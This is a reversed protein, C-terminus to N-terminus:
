ASAYRHAWSRGIYRVLAVQDLDNPWHAEVVKPFKDFLNIRYLYGELDADPFALYCSGPLHAAKAREKPDDWQSRSHILVGYVPIEDQDQETAWLTPHNTQALEYRFEARKVMAGPTPVANETLVIPGGRIETHFWNSGDARVAAGTLGPTLAAADRLYGEIKARRVFPWLNAAETDAFAAQCEDYAGQYGAFVAAFARELFKATLHRYVLEEIEEETV